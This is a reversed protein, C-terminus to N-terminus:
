EYAKEEDLEELFEEFEEDGAGEDSAELESNNADAQKEEINATEIEEEDQFEELEIDNLAAEIAEDEARRANRDNRAKEYEEDPKDSLYELAGVLPSMRDAPDNIEKEKSAADEITEALENKARTTASEIKDESYRITSRESNMFKKAEAIVESEKNVAKRNKYKKPMMIEPFMLAIADDFRNLEDQLVSKYKAAFNNFKDVMENTSHMIEEAEMTAKKVISTAELHANQLILDARKEANSSVDTVIEKATDLTRQVAREDGNIKELQDKLLQYEQALQKIDSTMKVIETNAKELEEKTQNHENVEQLKEEQLRENMKNYEEIEQLKEAQLEEKIQNYKDAEQSKEEQLNKREQMLASRENQSAEIDALLVAKEDQLKNKEIQIEQYETEVKTYTEQLEAYQTKLTETETQLAYHERKISAIAAEQDESFEIVSEIFDDVEEVKYGKRAQEFRIDKIEDVRLM